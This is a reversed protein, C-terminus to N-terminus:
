LQELSARVTFYAGLMLTIIGIGWTYASDKIDAIGFFLVYLGFLVIGFGGLIIVWYDEIFYGLIVIGLTLILILIYFGVSLNFGSSTVEFNNGGSYGNEYRYTYDYFGLQFTDCFTYNFVGNNDTMEINMFFTTDNPYTISTLNVASTNYPVRFNVCDNQKISPLTASTFSILFIGVLIFLALKSKM